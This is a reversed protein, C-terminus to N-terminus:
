VAVAEKMSKQVALVLELPYDCFDAIEEPKKGKRLMAMIKEKDREEKGIEQNELDRMMMTM